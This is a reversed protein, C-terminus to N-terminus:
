LIFKLKKKNLESEISNVLPTIVRKCYVLLSKSINKFYFSLLKMRESEALQLCSLNEPGYLMQILPIAGDLNDVYNIFNPLDYMNHTHITTNISLNFDSLGRKTRDAKYLACAEIYNLVTKLTGGKRVIKYIEPDVTDLSINMTRLNIKDLKNEIYKSFTYHGNTTYRFEAHPNVEAMIDILRYTDKQIFPEGHLPDIQTLHPFMTVKADEWFGIEDYLGNPDSYLSCMDCTLNCLGNFDPSLRKPPSTIIESLEVDKLLERNWMANHCNRDEQHTSCTKINEELFERRWARFKQNNWVESWHQEKINGLVHDKGQERCSLVNGYPDLIMSTFPVPCFNKPIKKL